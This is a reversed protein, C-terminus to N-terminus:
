PQSARRRSEKYDIVRKRRENLSLNSSIGQGNICGGDCFLVDLLRVESSEFNELSKRSLTPGSVVQIEDEALLERAESSEALGGSIPYLRTRDAEVSFLAGGDTPAGDALGRKEFVEDLEKYTLVLINQSARDEGAELKKAICPGIFVVKADGWKEAAIKAAASMPSDAGTALYKLLNPFNKRILRVINPCPATIVRAKKDSKLKELVQKNTEVAGASVEVVALFGLRHLKGIIEPYKYVVPFSPALLAVLKEKNELLKLLIQPEGM